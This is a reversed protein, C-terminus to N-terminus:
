GKIGASTVAQVFYKQCTFFLILIPVVQLVSLAMVAAYDTFEVEAFAKASLPLTYLDRSRIYYLPKEYDNFTWIFYLFLLTALAPKSLPLAIRTFIGPHSAGDLKAAEILENPMSMFNQRMLFVGFAGGLAPGLWLAMHTDMLGLRSYIVYTPLVTVQGPIMTTMLKLMFWQNRGHFPIKSYAYGAASCSIFTGVLAIFTVKISNWYNLLFPIREGSLIKEYNRLNIPDPIWKIPYDFMTFADKFSSSLMWLFPFFFLIGIGWMIVSLIIKRVLRINKLNPNNRGAITSM